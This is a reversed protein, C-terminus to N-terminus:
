HEAFSPGADSTVGAPAAAAAPRPDEAGGHGALHDEVHEAGCQILDLYLAYPTMASSGFNLVRKTLGVCNNVPFTLGDLVYPSVWFLLAREGFLGQLGWDEVMDDFSPHHYTIQAGETTLNVGMAVNTGHDELICWVHRFGTRLRGALPAIAEDTFLVLAKPWPDSPTM